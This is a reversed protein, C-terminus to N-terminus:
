TGSPGYEGYGGVNVIIGSEALVNKAHEILEADPLKWLEFDYKKDLSNWKSQGTQHFPLVHIERAKYKNAIEATKKLNEDDSNVDPILPIRIIIDKKQRYAAKLNSMILETGANTFRKHIETDTQKIDFLLMDCNEIANLFREAECYGCTEMATHIENEKAVKLLRTVFEAQMTPEGGSVTIGGGTNKYFVMDSLVIKVVEEFSKMEGSLARAKPPCFELCKGCMTCASRDYLVGNGNSCIAKQPCIEICGGCGICNSETFMVEPFNNNTEPNQCWSCRLPCGKFFVLTRIGPGDHVSFRQIDTICAFDAKNIAETYTDNELNRNEKEKIIFNDYIYNNINYLSIIEKAPICQM